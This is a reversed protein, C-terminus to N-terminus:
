LIMRVSIMNVKHPNIKIHGEGNRRIGFKRDLEAELGDLTMNALVPSIIGGQPTGAETPYRNGNETFGAKLWEKLIKRDTPINESMWKHSIHDSCGKMDGEPVWEPRNKGSLVRHCQDTADACSRKPRFGYSNRDATTESLPELALRYLAQMARDKMTPIGLARKKGNAKPIKMRRLPGAHYSKGALQRAAKLKAQPNNWTEGDVGPTKRGRNETVRRVATVRGSFSHTLLWQLARVKNHGGEEGAKVIRAQLSKAVKNCRARNIGHWSLM